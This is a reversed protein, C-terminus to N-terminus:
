RVEIFTGFVMTDFPVAFALFLASLWGVEFYRLLPKQMLIYISYALVEILLCVTGLVMKPKPKAFKRHHKKHRKKHHKKKKKKKAVHSSIGGRVGTVAAVAM